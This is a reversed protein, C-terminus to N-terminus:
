RKITISCRWSAIIISFEFVRFSAGNRCEGIPGADQAQNMISRAHRDAVLDVLVSTGKKRQL